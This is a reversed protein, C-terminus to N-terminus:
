KAHGHAATATEYHKKLLDEGFDDAFDRWVSHVHNANNQTNDYEILFTPGQIRYYHPLGRELGGAWAFGVKDVGAKLIKGLDDGALEPRLREAYLVVISNLLEKQEANLEPTLIGAPHIPEAKRAALSLIDGPAVEQVIAKKRQADDLSKVLKRALEEEEGLVRLGERPGSRVEAPNTGMFTPGGAVGQDGVITFNLALHHGEFRWGWPEQSDGSNPDGFLNFFYLEPDRVPGKGQELDALIQELSVITEAKIFGSQSLGSALLAQGLAKQGGTMEKLPLGKRPRPVFHWDHRLADKFEFGIKSKQEPTLSAWLNRAAAAMERGAKATSAEHTHAGPGDHASALPPRGHIAAVAFAIAIAFSLRSARPM